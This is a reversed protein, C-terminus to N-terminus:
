IFAYILFSGFAIALCGAARGFPSFINLMRAIFHEFRRRGMIALGLAAIIIIWGLVAITLPFIAQDAQSVLLGGLLLRVVIAVLYLWLSDLNDRIFNLPIRPNVATLFGAIVLLVGVIIVWMTM